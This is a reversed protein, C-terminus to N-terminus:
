KNWIEWAGEAQLHLMELGNKIVAGQEQGAKLFATVEPNYVLDFFLHNNGCYQYPIDPKADMNGYMGLPTTNVIVTNEEITNKDLSQYSIQNDGKPTRSVYKSEINLSKLGYAAAKAAGGTGLILAKKHHDKLLPQISRTFGIIDSNYGTLKPEKPNTWDVKIVNVAGVEKSVPDLDDLYQIVKEKYPITVNLGGIYPHHTLLEPFEDISAIPFNLYRAKLNEKEFKETFYKQSFSKSLPYGILGYTKMM